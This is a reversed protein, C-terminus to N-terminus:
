FLFLIGLYRPTKARKALVSIKEEKNKHHKSSIFKKRM